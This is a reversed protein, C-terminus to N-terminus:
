GLAKVSKILSMTYPDKPNQLIDGAQGMEVIKGKNMVAVRSCMKAVIGFDHTIFLISISEKEKIELLLDLVQAQITVDLATTPEDLVLLKPRNLLAMAIMARQKTGGSLQHPYDHFVKEPDKVHVKDLHNLVALTAEKVSSARGRAHGIDRVSSARGRAHVLMAETLQYGITMVPNFASSPEQFVYAIMSGRASRLEEGDMKLLDRGEFVASGSMLRAAPPMLRMLSLATMTKGSGSEGVLGFVEGTGIGFSVRDVIMRDNIAVSLDDVRLIDTRM